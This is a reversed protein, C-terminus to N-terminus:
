VCVRLQNPVDGVPWTCAEASTCLVLSDAHVYSPGGGGALEKDSSPLLSALVCTAEAVSYLVLSVTCPRMVSRCPCM